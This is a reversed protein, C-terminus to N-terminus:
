TPKRVQSNGVGMKRCENEEVTMREPGAEKGGLGLLRKEELLRVPVKAYNLTWRRAVQEERCFVKRRDFQFPKWEEEVPGLFEVVDQDEVRFASGVEFM